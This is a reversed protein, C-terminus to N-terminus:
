HYLCFLVQRSSLLSPPFPHYLLASPLFSGFLTHVHSYIFLLFTIMIVNRIFFLNRIESYPLFSTFPNLPPIWTITTTKQVMCKELLPSTFLFLRKSILIAQM